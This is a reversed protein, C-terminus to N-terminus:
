NAYSYKWIRFRDNAEECMRFGGSGAQISDILLYMHISKFQSPQSQLASEAITSVAPTLHTRVFYRQCFWSPGFGDERHIGAELGGVDCFRKRRASGHYRVEVSPGASLDM